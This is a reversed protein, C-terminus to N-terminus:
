GKREEVIGHIGLALAVGGACFAFKFSLISMDPTVDRASMLWEKYAPFMLLAIGHAVFVLGLLIGMVNFLKM